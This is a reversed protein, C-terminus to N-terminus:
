LFLCWLLFTDQSRIMTETYLFGLRVVHLVAVITDGTPRKQQQLTIAEPPM